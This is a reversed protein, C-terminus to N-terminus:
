QYSKVIIIDITIIRTKANNATQSQLHVWLVPFIGIVIFLKFILLLLVSIKSGVPVFVHISHNGTKLASRGIQSLDLQKFLPNM